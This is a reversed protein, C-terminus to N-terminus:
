STPYKRHYFKIIKDDPINSHLLMAISDAYERYLVIKGAKLTLFSAGKLTVKKGMSGPLLSIFAFQWEFSANEEDDSLIKVPQFSYARAEKHCREHFVRIAERGECAGYLSDLYVADEVFLDAFAVSDEQEFRKCFVKIIEM